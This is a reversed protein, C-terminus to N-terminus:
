REKVGGAPGPGLGPAVRESQRRRGTPMARYAFISSESFATRQEGEQAKRRQIINRQRRVKGAAITARTKRNLNGRSRAETVALQTPSGQPSVMTNPRKKRNCAWASNRKKSRPQIKILPFAGNKGEDAGPPQFERQQLIEVIAVTRIDGDEYIVDVQTEDNESDYGADAIYGKHVGLEGFDTHVECNVGGQSWSRHPSGKGKSGYPDGNAGARTPM